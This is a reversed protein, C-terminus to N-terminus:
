LVEIASHRHIHRRHRDSDHGQRYSHEQGSHRRVSNEFAARGRKKQELVLVSKGQSYKTTVVVDWQGTLDPTQAQATGCVVAIIVAAVSSYQNLLVRKM